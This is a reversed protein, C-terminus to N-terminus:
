EDGNLDFEFRDFVDRYAMIIQKPKYGMDALTYEHRSNYKEAKEVEIQLANQYDSTIEFGFTKYITDITGSLDNVLDKYKVIM